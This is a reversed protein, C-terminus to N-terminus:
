LIESLVRGRSLVLPRNLRDRLETAPDIGLVHWMTALLDAPSVPESAVFTGKKDSAGYV